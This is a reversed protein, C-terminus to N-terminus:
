SAEFILEVASSILKASGFTLLIKNTQPQNHLVPDQSTNNIPELTLSAQSHRRSRVSNPKYARRRSNEVKSATSLVLKSLAMITALRFAQPRERCLIHLKLVFNPQDKNLQATRQSNLSLRM